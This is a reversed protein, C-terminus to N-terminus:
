EVEIAMSQSTGGAIKSWTTLAGVQVPSSRSVRDNLGLQGYNNRGWLWLTGSTTIALSIDGFNPNASIKSWTTLAGVQVPSSRSVTDNLGLNGSGNYGFSWLTGDTKIALSSGFGADIKSWTTLAGVQVPSSRYVRDNLGLQGYNNKGWLWLTGNTKTAMSHNAGGDINSWNTDSGVQVPSSRNVRDNQGLEGYANYGWSWLTGDTKIALSHNRGAAIKSWTTLAGVQTPSSRSIGVDNLGLGGSENKGWVYLAGGTTTVICHDEGAAINSSWTTLAGVQTPSSRSVTDNQGLNGHANYGWTWITGDTKTAMSHNDGFAVNSWNTDSGVQVPSSRRVGDNLGLIGYTSRGWAYLNKDTVRTPWLGAKRLAMAQDITWLGPASGGENFEGSPGVTAAPSKTIVGSPYRTTM